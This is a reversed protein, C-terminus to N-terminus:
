CVLASQWGAAHQRVSCVLDRKLFGPLYHHIQQAKARGALTANDAEAATPSGFVCPKQIVSTKPNEARCLCDLGHCNVQDWKGTRFITRWGFQAKQRGLICGQNHLLQAAGHKGMPKCQHLKQSYGQSYSERRERTWKGSAEKGQTLITNSRVAKPIEETAPHM